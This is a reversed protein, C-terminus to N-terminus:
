KSAMAICASIHFKKRDRMDAQITPFTSAGAFAFMISGFASFIMILSFKVNYM